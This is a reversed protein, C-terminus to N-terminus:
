GFYSTRNMMTAFTLVTSNGIYDEQDAAEEFVGKKKTHICKRLFLFSIKSTSLKCGRVKLGEGKRSLSYELQYRYNEIQSETPIMLYQFVNGFHHLQNM